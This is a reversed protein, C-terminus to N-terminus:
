DVEYIELGHIANRADMTINVQQVRDGHVDYVSITSPSSGAIIYYEHTCLGRAWGQRYATAENLLGSRYKPVGWSKVIGGSLTGYVVRDSRTDNYLVGCRYPMANHNGAPVTAYKTYPLEWMNPRSQMSFYADVVNNLHITDRPGPGDDSLPDFHRAKRGRLCVGDAYTRTPIDFYLISDFQTSTLLITGDSHYIEHCHSLYSNGHSEILNFDRDYVFLENSAAVYIDDLVCIGRLGREGGRGSWDIDSNWDVVQEFTGDDLDVLYLGGHSEGPQTCRVVSSALVKM